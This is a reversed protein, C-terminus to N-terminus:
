AAVVVEESVVGVVVPAEEDEVAVAVGPVVGAGEVVEVDEPVV